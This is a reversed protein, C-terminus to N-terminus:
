DPIRSLADPVQMHKGKRHRLEFDYAQLRLAWRVLRGNSEKFRHLWLLSAHDTYFTFHIGDIYHRFKEISLIVALCEKETTMYRQQTPTLKASFYSIVRDIGNQKQTLMAGVGVNSADCHIEFPVSFDPLALIPASTLAAKIKVFAADAEPTWKPATM